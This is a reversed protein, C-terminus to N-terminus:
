KRITIEVGDLHLEIKNAEVRKKVANYEKIAAMKTKLDAHQNILFLHQKDVNEDSFGGEQLLENIRGIVKVNRLLRSASSMAKEYWFPKSKDVDYAEIYCQTGNGFLDRDIASAGAYLQCFEEQELNLGSETKAATKSSTKPM